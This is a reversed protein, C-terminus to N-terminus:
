FSSAMARRPGCRWLFFHVIILMFKSARRNEHDKKLRARRKHISFTIKETHRSTQAHRHKNQNRSQKTRASEIWNAPMLHSDPTRWMLPRRISLCHSKASLLKKLATHFSWLEKTAQWHLLFNQQKLVHMNVHWYFQYVMWIRNIQKANISISSWYSPNYIAKYTKTPHKRILYNSPISFSRTTTYTVARCKENRSPTFLFFDEFLIASRGILQRTQPNTVKYQNIIPSIDFAAWNQAALCLTLRFTM